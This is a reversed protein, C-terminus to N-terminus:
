ARLQVEPLRKAGLEVWIENRRLVPLTSPPDYGAFEPEGRTQLGARELAARLQHSKEAAREFTHRGSYRLVAVRRAPVSRLHVRRDEPVPLPKAARRKPIAFSVTYNQPGAVDAEVAEVRATVPTAMHIREGTSRRPALERGHSAHALEVEGLAALQRPHNAGLIYAALREFGENLAAQWSEARVTTEVRVSRSYRRIEVGGVHREVEYDPQDSFWRALQWRALLAAAAAVGSAVWVVRDPKM